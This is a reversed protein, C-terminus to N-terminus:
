VWKKTLKFIIFATPALIIFHIILFLIVFYLPYGQLFYRIQLLTSVVASLILAKTLLNLKRIFLYTIFGFITGYIIKNTFYYFPVAYEENLLHVIYDIFTLISIIILIILFIFFLKKFDIKM